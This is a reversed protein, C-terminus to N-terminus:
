ARPLRGVGGTSEYAPRKLDQGRHPHQRIGMRFTWNSRVNWRSHLYWPISRSSFGSHHAVVIRSYSIPFNKEINRIFNKSQIVTTSTVLLTDALGIVVGVSRDMLICPIETLRAQQSQGTVHDTNQLLRRIAHKASSTQMIRLLSQITNKSRSEAIACVDQSEGPPFTVMASFSLIIELLEHSNGTKRKVTM